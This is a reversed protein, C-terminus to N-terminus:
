LFRVYPVHTLWRGGLASYNHYRDLIEREHNWASLFAVLPNGSLFESEAKIPIHVGPTYKGIKNPTNDYVEHILEPGIRGYNYITTSKSTAGYAVVRHGENNLRELTVKLERSSNEVRNAFNIYTETLHLGQKYEYELLDRVAVAPNQNGIKAMTYRMSGGHTPQREVNIIEMGVSRFIERVSLASFLFVHEDYIQDYSGLSIVDGLYPDEFILVGGPKLLLSIGNALGKIDPIHCMVNASVIVDAPGHSALIQQALDVTFFDGLISVGAHEAVNAVDAAPEIGLHPIGRNAFHKLFIGDNSGIEVVFSSSSIQNRKLVANALKEFHESMRQSTGSFFAYNDHFMLGPAPQTILQFLRSEPNFGCQLLYFYEPDSINEVFGNGLPQLGLDLVVELPQDTLRCLAVISM